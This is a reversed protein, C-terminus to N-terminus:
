RARVGMYAGMIPNSLRVALVNSGVDLLETIEIPEVDVFTTCNADDNVCGEEQWEGGWHGLYEGQLWIWIGDDSQVDLFTRPGTAHLCRTTRYVKDTGAPVHGEDPLSV